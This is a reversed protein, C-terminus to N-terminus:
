ENLFMKVSTDFIGVDVKASFNTQKGVDIFFPQSLPVQFLNFTPIAAQHLRCGQIFREEFYEICIRFSRYNIFIRKGYNCANQWQRIREM